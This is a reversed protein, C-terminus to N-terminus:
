KLCPDMELIDVEEDKKEVPIPTMRSSVDDSDIVDDGHLSQASHTSKTQGPSGFSGPQTGGQTGEM